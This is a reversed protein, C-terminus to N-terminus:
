SPDSPKLPETTSEPQSIPEQEPTQTPEIETTPTNEPETTPKTEPETTPKTEPETTPTTEPTTQGSNSSSGSSNSNSNGTDNSSSGNDSSNDVNSENENSTNNTTPTTDEEEYIQPTEIYFDEDYYSTDEYSANNYTSTSEDEENVEEPEITFGEDTVKIGVYNEIISVPFLMEGSDSQPKEPNLNPVTIGSIERTDLPILNNDISTFVTNSNITIVKGNLNYIMSGVDSNDVITGEYANALDTLSVYNKGNVEKIEVTLTDANAIVSVMSFIFTFGIIYSIIKKKISM